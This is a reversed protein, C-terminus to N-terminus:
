ALRGRGVAAHEACGIGLPVGFWAQRVTSNSEIRVCRSAAPWVECRVSAESWREGRENHDRRLGGQPDPQSGAGGLLLQLGLVVSGGVSGRICFERRARLRLQQNVM